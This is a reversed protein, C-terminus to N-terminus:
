SSCLIRIVEASIRTQGYRVLDRTLGVLHQKEYVGRSGDINPKKEEASQKSRRILIQSDMILTGVAFNSTIIRPKESLDGM